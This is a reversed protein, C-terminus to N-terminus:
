LKAYAQGAWMRSHVLHVAGIGLEFSPLPLWLGKRAFVGVTSLTRAGHRVGTGAPDPSSELVRWHAHDSHIQTSALDATIAFGGFGVTDAGDGSRPALDVGLESALSRFAQNDGVAYILTVDD